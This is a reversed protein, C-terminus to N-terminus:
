YKLALGVKVQQGLGGCAQAGQIPGICAAKDPFITEVWADIAVGNTLQGMMGVGIAPAIRWERNSALGPFNLSIDDEHIAAMLYPHANTVVQGNPLAPFPAVTGLNPLNPLLSLFNSLPTGLLFRQEFSAPGSLGFGQSNGNFNTWGFMAEVAVFAPAKANSWAYGVAGGVGASNTTLSASGVGPVSGNVAGGGGETYIGFYFGSGSYPYGALFANAPAKVPMDAAVAIGMFGGCMAAAVILSRMRM